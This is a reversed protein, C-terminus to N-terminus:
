TPSASTPLVSSSAITGLSCYPYIFARLKLKSPSALSLCFAPWLNTYGSCLTLLSLHNSILSVPCVLALDHQVKYALQKWLQPGMLIGSIRLPEIRDEKQWINKQTLSRWITWVFCCTAVHQMCLCIHFDLQRRNFWINFCNAFNYFLVM